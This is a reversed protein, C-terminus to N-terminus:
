GLTNPHITSWGQFIFYQIVVAVVNFQQYFLVITLFIFIYTELIIYNWKLPYIEAVLFSSCQKENLNSLKNQQKNHDM